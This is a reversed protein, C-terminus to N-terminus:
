QKAAALNEVAIAIAPTRVTGQGQYDWAFVAKESAMQFSTIFQEKTDYRLAGLMRAIVRGPDQKNGNHNLDVFGKLGVIVEHPSVKLVSATLDARDIRSEKPSYVCVAPYFYQYLKDAVRQPVEWSDGVKADPPPVLAGWEAPGLEIWDEGVGRNDKSSPLYCTWVHLMLGTRYKPRPATSAWTASALVAQPDRPTLHLDEVAKTLMRELNEPRLAIGVDMSNKVNGDPEVIYATVTGHFLGHQEARKRILDWEVREARSKKEKGYDDVSMMAPVFYRSILDIISPKSLSVARM